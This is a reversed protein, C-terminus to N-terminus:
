RCPVSRFSGFIRQLTKALHLIRRLIDSFYMMWWSSLIRFDTREFQGICFGDSRKALGKVGGGGICHKQFKVLVIQELYNGAKDSKRM